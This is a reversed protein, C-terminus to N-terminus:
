GFPRNGRVDPLAGAPDKVSVADAFTEGRVAGSDSCLVTEGLVGFPDYESSCVTNSLESWM